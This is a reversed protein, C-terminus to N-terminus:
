PEGPDCPVGSTLSESPEDGLQDRETVGSCV